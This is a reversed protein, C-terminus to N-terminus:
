KLRKWEQKSKNPTIGNTTLKEDEVKVKFTDEKGLRKELDGGSVFEFKETFVGDKLTWRGGASKLITKKEKDCIFWAFHTKTIVLLV